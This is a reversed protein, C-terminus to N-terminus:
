DNKAEWTPCNKYTALIATRIVQTPDRFTWSRTISIPLPPIVVQYTCAGVKSIRINEKETLQWKAWRCTKCTKDM